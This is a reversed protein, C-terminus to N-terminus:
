LPIEMTIDWETEQLAAKRLPFAANVRSTRGLSMSIQELPFAVILKITETYM